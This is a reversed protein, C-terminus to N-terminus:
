VNAALTQRQLQQAKTQLKGSLEHLESIKETYEQIQTMLSQLVTSDATSEALSKLSCMKQTFREVLGKIEQSRKSLCDQQDTQVIETPQTVTGMDGEFIWKGKKYNNIRSQRNQKELEGQKESALLLEQAMIVTFENLHFLPKHGTKLHVIAKNIFDRTSVQDEYDQSADTIIADFHDSATKFFIM